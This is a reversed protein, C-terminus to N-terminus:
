KSRMRFFQATSVNGTYAGPLIKKKFIIIHGALNLVMSNTERRSSSLVESLSVKTYRCCRCVVVWGLWAFFCGCDVWMLLLAAICSTSRFKLKGLAAWVCGQVFKDDQECRAMIIHFTYAILVSLISASVKHWNVFLMNYTSCINKQWILECKLLEPHRCVYLGRHIASGGQSTLFLLLSLACESRWDNM